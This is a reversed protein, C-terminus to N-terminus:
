LKINYFGLIGKCNQCGEDGGRIKLTLRKIGTSLTAVDRGFFSAVSTLSVIGLHVVVIGVLHRAEAMCRNRGPTKLDTGGRFFIAM